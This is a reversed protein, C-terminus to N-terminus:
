TVFCSVSEVAPLGYSALQLQNWLRYDTRRWSYSIGCGTTRVVGVTGRRTLDGYKMLVSPENGHECSGAM